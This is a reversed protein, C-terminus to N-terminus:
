IGLLLFNRDRTLLDLIHILNKTTQFYISTYPSMLAIYKAM